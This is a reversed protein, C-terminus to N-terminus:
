RQYGGSHHVTSELYFPFKSWFKCVRLKGFIPIQFFTRTKLPSDLVNFVNAFISINIPFRRYKAVVQTSDIEIGLREKLEQALTLQLLAPSITTETPGLVMLTTAGYTPTLERDLSDRVAEAFTCPAM